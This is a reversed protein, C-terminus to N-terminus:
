SLLESLINDKTKPCLCRFARPTGEVHTVRPFADEALTERSVDLFDTSPGNSPNFELDKRDEPRAARHGEELVVLNQIENWDM